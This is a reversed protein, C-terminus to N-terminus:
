AATRAWAHLKPVARIASSVPMLTSVRSQYVRHYKRSSVRRGALADITLAWWRWGRARAHPPPVSDDESPSRRGM